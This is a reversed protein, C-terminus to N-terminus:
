EKQNSDYSSHSSDHFDSSDSVNYTSKSESPIKEKTKSKEEKEQKSKSSKSDVKEANKEKRVAKAVGNIIKPMAKEIGAAILDQLRTEMENERQKEYSIPPTDNKTVEISHSSETTEVIKKSRTGQSPGARKNAKNINDNEM